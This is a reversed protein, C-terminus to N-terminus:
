VKSSLHMVLGSCVVLNALSDNRNKKVSTLNPRHDNVCYWRAFDKVTVNTPAPSGQFLCKDLIFTIQHSKGRSSPGSLGVIVAFELQVRLQQWRRGTRKQPVSWIALLDQKNAASISSLSKSLRKPFNPEPIYKRLRPAKFFAQKTVTRYRVVLISKPYHYM